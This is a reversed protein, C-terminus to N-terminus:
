AAGLWQPARGDRPTFRSCRLTIESTRDSRSSFPGLLVYYDSFDTGLKFKGNAGKAKRKPAANACGAMGENTLQTAAHTGRHGRSSGEEGVSWGRM